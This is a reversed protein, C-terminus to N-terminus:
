NDIFFWFYKSILIFWGHFNFYLGNVLYSNNYIKIQLTTSLLYWRVKYITLKWLIKSARVLFVVIFFFVISQGKITTLPMGYSNNVIRYIYLVSYFVYREKRGKKFRRMRRKKWYFLLMQMLMLRKYLCYHYFLNDCWLYSLTMLPFPSVRYNLLWNVYCKIFLVMGDWRM